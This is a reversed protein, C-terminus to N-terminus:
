PMPGTDTTCRARRPLHPRPCGMADFVAIGPLRRRRHLAAHGPARASGVCRRRRRALMIHIPNVRGFAGTMPGSADLPLALSFVRGRRVLSAAQKVKEANVFNMSGLEDDPGWNGWNRYRAALELVTSSDPTTTTM